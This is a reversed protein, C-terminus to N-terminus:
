EGSDVFSKAKLSQMRPDFSDRNFLHIVEEDDDIGLANFLKLTFNAKTAIAPKAMIKAM